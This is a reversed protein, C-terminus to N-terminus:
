EEEFYDDDDFIDDDDPNSSKDHIVGERSQHYSSQVFLYYDTSAEKASDIAEDLESRAQLANLGIMGYQIRDDTGTDFTDAYQTIAVPHVAGDVFLGIADRLNSPGIFPIVIYPGAPIGYHGLATGFDESHHELGMEAAVDFLGFLGLTSNILFRGTHEAAQTFKLQLIDSLLYQPYQLNNLFNRVKKRGEVPVVFEYVDNVNDLILYDVQDNFWFVGRNIPELPDYIEEAAVTNGILLLCCLLFALRSKTQLNRQGRLM